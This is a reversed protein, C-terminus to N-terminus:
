KKEGNDKYRLNKMFDNVKVYKVTFNTDIKTWDKMRFTKKADWEQLWKRIKEADEYDEYIRAQNWNYTFIPQTKKDNMECYIYPGWCIVYGAEM